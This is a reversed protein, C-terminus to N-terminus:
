FHLLFHIKPTKPTLNAFNEGFFKKELFIKKELFNELIKHFNQFNKSFQLKFICFFDIKRSFQHTVLVVQPCKKGDGFGGPPFFGFLGGGGVVDRIYNRSNAFYIVRDLRKCVVDM